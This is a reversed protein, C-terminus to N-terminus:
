FAWDLFVLFFGANENLHRPCDKVSWRVGTAGRKAQMDSLREWAKKLNRLEDNSMPWDREKIIAQKAALPKRLEKAADPRNDYLCEQARTFVRVRGVPSNLEIQELTNPMNVYAAEHASPPTWRGAGYLKKQDEYREMIGLESIEKKVAMALIEVTYGSQKLTAITEMIPKSQRMTGEFIIDRKNKIASAFLRKTWERVDPDTREAFLKDDLSLITKAQPHADRYEDGNIVVAKRPAFELISFNILTSKGAGPQGAVIVAKPSLSASTGDLLDRELYSFVIEHKISSLKYSDDGM